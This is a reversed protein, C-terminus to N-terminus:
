IDEKDRVIDKLNPGRCRCHYCFEYVINITKYYENLYLKLYRL